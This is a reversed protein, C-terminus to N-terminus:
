FIFVLSICSKKEKERGLVSDRIVNKLCRHTLKSYRFFCHYHFCDYGFTHPIHRHLMRNHGAKGLKSM